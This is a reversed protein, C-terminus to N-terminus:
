NDPYLLCNQIANTPTHIIYGWVFNWMRLELPRRIRLPRLNESLNQICKEDGGHTSSTQGM